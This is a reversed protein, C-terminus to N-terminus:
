PRHEDAAPDVGPDSRRVATLAGSLSSRDAFTWIDGVVLGEPFPDDHQLVYKAYGTIWGRGTLEPVVAPVGGVTTEEVIRGVYLTGTVSEHRFSEGVALRGQAHLTAMRACTSTGCPARDMSGSAIVSVNRATNQSDRPPGYLMTGEIVNVAPQEPHALAPLQERVAALIAFTATQLDRGEGAELAFGLAAGDVQAWIMGGYAVDTVVTGYGTVEVPVGTALPLSPVNAFTVGRVRGGECDARVRVLGAPTELTLRTVPETMPVVGTELLVTVVCITNSGSMTAYLDSNELIVFGADAKPDTAPLVINACAAPFGRPERLMLKRFWDVNEEVYRMKEFMTSGPIDLAGVGGLVVRGHQGEAHADVADVSFRVSV